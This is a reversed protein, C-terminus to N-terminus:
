DGLRRRRLGTAATAIGAAALLATLGGTAATGDVPRDTQVVPGIPQGADDDGGGLTDDPDAPESPDPSGPSPPPTGTCLILLPNDGDVLEIEDGARVGLEWFVGDAGPHPSDVNRGQFVVAYDQDAVFTAGAPRDAVWCRADRVGQEADLWTQWAEPDTFYGNDPPFLTPVQDATCLVLSPEFGEPVAFESTVGASIGFGPAGIVEEYEADQGQAAYVAVIRAYDRDATFTASGPFPAVACVPNDFGEDLLVQEWVAPDTPDTPELPGAQASQAGAVLLLSAAALAAGTHWRSM